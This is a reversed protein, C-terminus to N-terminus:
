GESLLHEKWPETYGVWSEVVGCVHIQAGLDSGGPVQGEPPYPGQLLFHLMLEMWPKVGSRQSWQRPESCNERCGTHELGLAPLGLRRWLGVYDSHSRVGVELHLAM